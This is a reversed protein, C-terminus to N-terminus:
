MTEIIKMVEEVHGDVKVKYFSKQILGQKNIIFTSRIIGFYTRGYMKKEAWVGYKEAVEHEPDSLLTFNLNYKGIFNQHSKISDPSIGIVVTDKAEITEISDRFSCAENTCGPTNDKPYFYVIVNSKGFFNSLSIEEDKDSTLTFDPAKDGTALM